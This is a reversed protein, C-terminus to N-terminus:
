ITSGEKVDNIITQLRLFYKFFTVTTALQMITMQFNTDM